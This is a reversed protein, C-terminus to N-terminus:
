RFESLCLSLCFFKQCKFVRFHKISTLGLMRFLLEPLLWHFETFNDVIWLEDFPFSSRNLGFNRATTITALGVKHRTVAPMSATRSRAPPPRPSVPRSSPQEFLCYTFLFFLYITEILWESLINKFNEVFVCCKLRGIRQLQQNDLVQFPSFWIAEKVVLNFWSPVYCGPWLLTWHLCIM